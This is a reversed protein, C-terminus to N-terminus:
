KIHCGKDSLLEIFGVPARHEGSTSEATLILLGHDDEDDESDESTPDLIDLIVKMKVQEGRMIARRRYYIELLQSWLTEADDPLASKVETYVDLVIALLMNLMILHLAKMKVQEGRM